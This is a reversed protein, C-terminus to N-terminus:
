NALCKEIEGKREREKKWEEFKRVNEADSYFAQMAKYLSRAISKAQIDNM